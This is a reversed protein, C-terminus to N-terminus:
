ANNAGVRFERRLIQMLEEAMQRFDTVVIAHPYIQRVYDAGIGIGIIKVGQREVGQVTNILLNADGNPQGDSIVILVKKPERREQLRQFAFLLHEEDWNNRRPKIGTLRTRAIIYPECFRKYLRHELPSCRTTRYQYPPILGLKLAARAEYEATTYGIIELPAGILELTEGLLLAAKMAIKSKEQGQMSASEDVLLTFAVARSGGTIPRQFLRYNGIRQKWLKAMNLKGSRYQGGFRLYVEERILNTLRHALYGAERQIEARVLRYSEYDGTPPEVITQQHTQLASPHIDKKGIGREFWPASGPRFWEPFEQRRGLVGISVLGSGEIFEPVGDPPQAGATLEKSRARRGDEQDDASPNQETPDGRRLQRRSHILPAIVPYIEQLTYFTDRASLSHAARNIEGELAVLASHVKPSFRGGLYGRGELYLGIELQEVPPMKALLSGGLNPLLNAEFSKGAGPWHQIFWNEVRADELAHWFACFFPKGAEEERRVADVWPKSDSLSHGLLHLARGKLLRYGAMSAEGAAAKMIIHSEGILDRNGFEFRLDFNHAAAQLVKELRVRRVEVELNGEGSDSTSTL